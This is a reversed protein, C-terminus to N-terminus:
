VKPCDTKSLLSEIVRAHSSVNLQLIICGYGHGLTLLFCDSMLTIRKFLSIEGLEGRFFFFSFTVKMSITAYYHLQTNTRM